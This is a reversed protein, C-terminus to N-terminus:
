ATMTYTHVFPPYCTLLVYLFDKSLKPYYEERSKLYFFIQCHWNFTHDNYNVLAKGKKCSEEMREKRLAVHLLSPEGNKLNRGLHSPTRTSSPSPKLNQIVFFSKSNQIRRKRQRQNKVLRCKGAFFSRFFNVFNRRKNHFRVFWM